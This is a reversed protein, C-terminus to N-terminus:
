VVRGPLAPSSALARLGCCAHWMCEISFTASFLLVALMDYCNKQKLRKAAFARRSASRLGRGEVSMGREVNRRWNEKM